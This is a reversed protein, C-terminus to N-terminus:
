QWVGVKNVQLYAASRCWHPAWLNWRLWPSTLGSSASLFLCFPPKQRLFILFYSQGTHFVHQAERERRQSYSFFFRPCQIIEKQLFSSIDTNWWQHHFTNLAWKQTRINQRSCLWRQATQTPWQKNHSIVRILRNGFRAPDILGAIIPSLPLSSPPSSPNMSMMPKGGQVIHRHAGSCLQVSVPIYTQHRAGGWVWHIDTQSNGTASLLFLLVDSVFLSDAPVYIQDKQFRLPDNASLFALKVAKPPTLVCNITIMM